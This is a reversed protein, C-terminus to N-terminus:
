QKILLIYYLLDRLEGDYQKFGGQITCQCQFGCKELIKKSAINEPFCYAVYRHLRLNEFCFHMFAEAAESVYGNNWYSESLSYGLMWDNNDPQIVDNTISISGIVTDTQPLTIGLHFHNPKFYKRIISQTEVLSEHPKWGGNRGVTPSHCFQFIDNADYNFIPRLTLRRTYVIRGERKLRLYNIRKWIPIAM